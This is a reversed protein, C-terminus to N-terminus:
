YLEFVETEGHPGSLTSNAERASIYTLGPKNIALDGNHGRTGRESQERAIAGISVVAFAVAVAAAVRAEISLTM